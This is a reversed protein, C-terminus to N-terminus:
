NNRFIILKYIFFNWLGIVLNVMVQALIYWIHFGAVLHYMFLGNLYLGLFTNLIYLGLQGFMKERNHNRFTWFKQLTFSVLLSLIYALTTSPVIALKLLGHFIFLFILDVAAALSGAIIFKVISKRSDCFGYTRPFRSSLFYRFRYYIKNILRM